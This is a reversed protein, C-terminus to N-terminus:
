EFRSVNQHVKASELRKLIQNAQCCFEHTSNSLDGFEHFSELLHVAAGDFLENVKQSLKEMIFLRKTIFIVLSDNNVEDIHKMRDLFDRSKV